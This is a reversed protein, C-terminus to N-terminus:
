LSKTIKFNSPGNNVLQGYLFAINQLFSILVIRSLRSCM